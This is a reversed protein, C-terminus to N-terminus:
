FPTPYPSTQHSEHHTEKKPPPPPALREPRVSPRSAATVHNITGCRPCKIALRTYDADALKRNCQGCRITEM